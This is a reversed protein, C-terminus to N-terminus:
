FEQLTGPTGSTERASWLKRAGESRLVGVGCSLLVMSPASLVFVPPFDLTAIVSVGIGCVHLGILAPRSLKKHFLLAVGFIGHVVLYVAAGPIVIIAGVLYAVAVFGSNHNERAFLAPM